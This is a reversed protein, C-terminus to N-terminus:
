QAFAALEANFKEPEEWFPCHGSKEFRILKAKPMNAELWAGVETPFIKNNLRGYMLLAPVTVKSLTPRFDRYAMDQFVAIASETPTKMSEAYMEDVVAATVPEAFMVQLFGKVTAPRNARLGAMIGTVGPPGFGGMLPHDWGPVSMFFPSQDVFVVSRLRDTGFQDVYGLIVATGMSWGVLTADRLDLKELVLRV